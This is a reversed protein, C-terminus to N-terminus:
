AAPGAGGAIVGRGTRQLFADELNVRRLIVRGPFAAAAAAAADRDPYFSSELEDDVLRDVAWEGQASVLATPVDVAVLRGGAIFAVRGALYEAEEIYHTTLFVTCGDEQIRRILSWIRRRIAADLGVTPEDLFIIRPRHLLARIILLRRKLGGSLEKVPSELRDALGVSDTLEVIRRRRERRDIGFFRGHIDLNQAVTLETDLNVAQPVLGVQRRAAAPERAADRGGLRVIGGDARTLGTMIRVMTTKGAGNPGLLAFLEGAAVTLDVGALATVAGYHKVLGEVEIAAM